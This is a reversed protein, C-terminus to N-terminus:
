NTESRFALYTDEGRSAMNEFGSIADTPSHSSQLSHMGGLSYSGTSAHGLMSSHTRNCWTSQLRATEIHQRIYLPRDEEKLITVSVENDKHFQHFLSVEADHAEIANPMMILAVDGRGTHHKTIQVAQVEGFPLFLDFLDDETWDIPLWDLILVM